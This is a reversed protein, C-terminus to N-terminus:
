NTYLRRQVEKIGDLSIEENEDALELELSVRAIEHACKAIYQKIENGIEGEYLIKCKILEPNALLGQLAYKKYEVFSLAESSNLEKPKKTKNM